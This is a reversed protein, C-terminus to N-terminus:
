DPARRAAKFAFGWSRDAALAGGVLMGNGEDVRHVAFGTMALGTFHCFPGYTASISLDFFNKGSPSPNLSGEVVCSSSTLAFRGDDFVEIYAGPMNGGATTRAQVDDEFTGALDALPAPPQDYSSEYVGTSSTDDPQATVSFDLRPHYTGSFTIAENSGDVLNYNTLNGTLTTADWSTQGHQMGVLSGEYMTLSWTQGDALILTGSTVAPINVPSSLWLGEASGTPAPPEDGGGCATLFVAIAALTALRKIM